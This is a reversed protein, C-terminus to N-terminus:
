PAARLIVIEAMRQEGEDGHAPEHVAVDDGAFGDGLAADQQSQDAGQHVVGPIYLGIVVMVTGPRFIGQLM